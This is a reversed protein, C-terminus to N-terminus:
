LLLGGFYCVYSKYTDFVDCNDSMTLGCKDKLFERIDSNYILFLGGDCMLNLATWDDLGYSKKVHDMESKFDAESDFFSLIHEKIVDKLIDHAKTFEASTGNALNIKAM